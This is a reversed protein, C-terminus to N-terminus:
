ETKVSFTKKLVRECNACLMVAFISGLVAPIICIHNFTLFGWNGAVPTGVWAGMWAVIVEIWYGGCSRVKLVYYWILSVAVAIITLWLWSLFGMFVMQNEIATTEM